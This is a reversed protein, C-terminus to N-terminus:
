KYFDLWFPKTRIGERRIYSDVKVKVELTAFQNEWNDKIKKWQKPNALHVKEGFGFIDSKYHQAAKISTLIQRKIEKEVLEDIKEITKPDTLDVATDAENIVGEDKIDVNIVPKGNTFHVSIKTNSRVILMVIANKKGHWNVSIDTSQVKNLIWVVGRANENDMWGVLKGHKFVALGNAELFADTTTKQLNEAKRAMRKNGNVTYGNV